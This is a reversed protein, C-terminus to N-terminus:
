ASLRRERFPMEGHKKRRRDPGFFEPARIFSRGDEIVRVIRAYITRASVPKALFETMGHDRALCVKTIDTYATVMFFCVFPNPTTEGNRVYHLFEMGNLDECWDCMILDIPNDNFIKWATAMDATSHVTPVGFATFVDTLLRRILVSKELVLINLGSIDYAKM